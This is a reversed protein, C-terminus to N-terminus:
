AKLQELKEDRRREAEEINGYYVRSSLTGAAIRAIVSSVFLSLELFVYRRGVNNYKRNKRRPYVLTKWLREANRNCQRVELIGAM